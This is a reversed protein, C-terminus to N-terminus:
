KTRSLYLLNDVWRVESNGFHKSGETKTQQKWINYIPPDFDTLHNAAAPKGIKSMQGFNSFDGIRNSVTQVAVDEAEAIEEQTYCALWM